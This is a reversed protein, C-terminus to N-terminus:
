KACRMKVREIWVLNAGQLANIMRNYQRREIRTRAGVLRAKIQKLNMDAISKRTSM